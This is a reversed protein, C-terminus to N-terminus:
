LPNGSRRGNKYEELLHGDYKKIMDYLWFNVHYRANCLEKPFLTEKNELLHYHNYVSLTAGKTTRGTLVEIKWATTPEVILPIEEKKKKSSFASILRRIM